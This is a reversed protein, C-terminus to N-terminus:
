KYEQKIKGLLVKIKRDKEIDERDKEDNLLIQIKLFGRMATWFVFSQPNRPEDAQGNYDNEYQVELWKMMEETVKRPLIM